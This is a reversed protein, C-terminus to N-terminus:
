TESDAAPSQVGVSSPRDIERRSAEWLQQEIGLQRLEILGREVDVADHSTPPQGSRSIWLQLQSEAIDEEVANVKARRWFYLLWAQKFSVDEAEEQTLELSELIRPDGSSKLHALNPRRHQALALVVADEVKLSYLERLDMEVSLMSEISSEGAIDTLNRTIKYKRESDNVRDQSEEKARQGASIVVEFPLPALSSWHEYKCVAIEPYIGHRVALGWYRALWCRKLVVEEMEEQTLIMRQTMSRLAKAESQAQHLQEMANAVEDRASEAELRISAMEEERGGMSQEVVRLAAERQRIAEERRSVLHPDVTIGEGLTAVQKELEQARAESEKFRNEVARLKDRLEQNDEQLMEVEDELASTEHQNGTQGSNMHGHGLNAAFRTNRHRNVPPQVVPVPTSTNLSERSPSGLTTSHASVGARGALPSHSSQTIAVLNQVFAPSPSRASSGLVAASNGGGNIISLPMTAGYRRGGESSYLLDDEDGEDDNDDDTQTAMVQALRAAAAKTAVNQARRVNPMGATGSSTQHHAPTMMPSSTGMSSSSMNRQHSYAPSRARRRDM